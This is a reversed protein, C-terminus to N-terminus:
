ADCRRWKLPVTSELAAGARPENEEEESEDDSGPILEPASDKDVLSEFLNSGPRPQAITLVIQAETAGSDQAGGPEWLEWMADSRRSPQLIAIRMNLVKCCAFPILKLTEKTLREQDKTLKDAFADVTRPQVMSAISRTMNRTSVKDPDRNQEVVEFASSALPPPPVFYTDQNALLWDACLQKLNSAGKLNSVASAQTSSGDQAQLSYQHSVCSFFCGEIATGFDSALVLGISQAQRAIAQHNKERRRADLAPNRFRGRSRVEASQAGKQDTKPDQESVDETKVRKARHEEPSAERGRKASSIGVDGNRMGDGDAQGGHPGAGESSGIRSM